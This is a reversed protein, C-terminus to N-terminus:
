GDGSQLVSADSAPFVVCMTTCTLSRASLIALSHTLHCGSM